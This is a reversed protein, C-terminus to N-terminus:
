SFDYEIKTQGTGIIQYKYSTLERLGMPGRAHIKDTSIGMETGFGFEEGDSFRTSANVYVCASDIENLFREANELSSTVIADSHHSGYINIHAIAEDLSSVLKVALEYDLYETTWDEESAPVAGWPELVALSKSCAHWRVSKEALRSAIRPLLALSHEHILLTELANCAGPKQTKADYILKEVWSPDAEEDVYLHCVGDYHKIVPMRAEAVVTEILSRGGRPILLDVYKNLQCLAKVVRRDTDRILQVAGEPVGFKILVDNMVDALACNSEYADSGGKLIVANGSKLCLGATDVTVNPRSEYIIGIVGIPVRRQVILLGNPRERTEMIEGVPDDLSAIKELGSAMSEVRESTLVLRDLLSESLGRQRARLIDHANAELIRPLSKRLALAMARLIEDKRGASMLGLVATAAKARIGYDILSLESSGKM